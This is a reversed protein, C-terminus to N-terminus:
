SRMVSVRRGEDQKLFELEPRVAGGQTARLNRPEPLGQDRDAHLHHAGDAPDDQVERAGM